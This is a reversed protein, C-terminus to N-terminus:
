NAVSDATTLLPYLISLASLESLERKWPLSDKGSIQSDSTLSNPRLGDAKRM